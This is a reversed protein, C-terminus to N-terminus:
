PFEQTQCRHLLLTEPCSRHLYFELRGFSGIGRKIYIVPEITDCKSSGIVSVMQGSGRYYGEIFVKLNLTVDGSTVTFAPVSFISGCVGTVEISGSLAGAPVLATILSANNVTFSASVGNFYVASTGTFDGGNIQVPTGPSGTAPSFGSISVPNLLTVIVSNSVSACTGTVSSPFNITWNDLTGFDLNARDYVWLKWNGNPNVSGANIASFTTLSTTVCSTFISAWPKYTGTYPAGSSPIQASGADSFVTNTFNDGSSGVRNSLGLL